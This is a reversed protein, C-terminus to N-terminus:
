QDVVDVLHHLDVLGMTGSEQLHALHQSVALYQVVVAGALLALKVGKVFYKLTLRIRHAVLFCDWMQHHLAIWEHLLM